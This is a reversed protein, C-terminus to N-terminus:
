DDQLTGVILQSPLYLGVCGGVVGFWVQLYVRPSVLSGDIINRM